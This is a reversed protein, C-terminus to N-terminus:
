LDTSSTSVSAHPFVTLSLVGPIWIVLLVPVIFLTWRVIISHNYLKRLQLFPSADSDPKSKSLTKIQISSKSSNPPLRAQEPDPNLHIGHALSTIPPVGHGSHRPPYKAQNLNPHRIDRPSQTYALRVDDTSDAGINLVEHRGQVLLGSQRSSM